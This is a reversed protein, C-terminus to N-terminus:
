EHGTYLGDKFHLTTSGIVIDYTAGDSKSLAERHVKDLIDKLIAINADDFKVVDKTKPIM